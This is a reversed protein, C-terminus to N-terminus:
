GRGLRLARLGEGGGGKLSVNLLLRGLEVSGGEPSWGTQYYALTDGWRLFCLLGIMHRDREAIMAIPGRETSGRAVLRRFLTEAKLFTSSVGKEAMRSKHLEFFRELFADDMQRGLM